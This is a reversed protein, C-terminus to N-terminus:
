RIILTKMMYNIDQTIEDPVNGYTIFTMTYAVNNHITTYYCVDTPTDVSSDTDASGRYHVEIFKRNNITTVRGSIYTGHVTSAISKGLSEAYENTMSFGKGSYADTRISMEAFFSDSSCLLSFDTGDKSDTVIDYGDIYSVCFNADATSNGSTLTKSLAFTKTEELPPTSVKTSIEVCNKEENWLVTAGFAESVARVPVLTRESIIIPSIDLPLINNNVYMVPSDITLIIKTEGLVSTITETKSDWFVDAGLAEFIARVPVLVRGNYNIPTVDFEIRTSNVEVTVPNYASVNVNAFFMLMLLLISLIRKM